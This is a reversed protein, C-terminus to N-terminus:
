FISNIEMKLNFQLDSVDFAKQLQVLWGLCDAVYNVKNMCVLNVFDRFCIIEECPTM